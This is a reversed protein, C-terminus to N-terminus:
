EVFFFFHSFHQHSSRVFYSFNPTLSHRCRCHHFHLCYCCYNTLNVYNIIYAFSYHRAATLLNENEDEKEEKTAINEINMQKNKKEEKKRELLDNHHLSTKKRSHFSFNVSYIGNDQM